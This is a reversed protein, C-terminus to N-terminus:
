CQSNDLYYKIRKKNAKIGVLCNYNFSNISDSLLRGSQLFTYIIVSMFVNLQFNGQCAGFAVALDNAMVQCVVMTLAESQTPNVKGPMRCERFTYRYFEKFSRLFLAKLM